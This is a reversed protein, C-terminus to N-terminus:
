SSSSRCARRARAGSSAARPAGDAPSVTAARSGATGSIANYGSVGSPAAIRSANRASSRAVSTARAACTVCSSAATCAIPACARAHTSATRPSRSADPPMSDKRRSYSRDVGSPTSSIHTASANSRIGSAAVASASIRSLSERPSQSRCRPSDSESSTLADVHPSISVPLSVRMSRSSARSARAQYARKAARAPSGTTRIAMRCAICTIASCNTSPRVISSATARLAVGACRAYRCEYSM